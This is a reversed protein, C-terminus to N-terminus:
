EGGKPFMTSLNSLFWGITFFIGATFASALTVGVANADM